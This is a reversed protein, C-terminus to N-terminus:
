PHNLKCSKSSRLLAQKSPLTFGKIVGNDPISFGPETVYAAECSSAGGNFSIISRSSSRKRTQRQTQRRQRKLKTKKIHAM